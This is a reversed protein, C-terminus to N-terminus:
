TTTNTIIRADKFLEFSVGVLGEGEACQKIRESVIIDDTTSWMFDWPKDYIWILPELDGNPFEVKMEEAIRLYEDYSQIEGTAFRKYSECMDSFPSVHFTVRSYDLSQFHQYPIHLLYYSREEDGMNHYNSMHMPYLRHKPGEFGQLLRKFRPSIIVKNAWPPPVMDFRVDHKWTHTDAYQVTSTLDQCAHMKMEIVQPTEWFSNLTIHEYLHLRREESKLLMATWKTYSRDQTITYFNM